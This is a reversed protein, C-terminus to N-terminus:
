EPGRYPWAGRAKLSHEVFRAHVEALPAATQKGELLAVADAIAELTSRRDARPSHRLRLPAEAKPPLSLRPLKWLSPLKKLMRRVERWTGDLVVLRRPPAGLRDLGAGGPFLLWTDVLGALRLDVCEYPPAAPVVRCRPLALKAIRATGSARWAESPHRM